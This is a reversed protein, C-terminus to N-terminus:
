KSLIELLYDTAVKDRMNSLRSVIEKKMEIDTEKRAIAVLAAANGQTFLGNIVTKKIAADKETGYIEV